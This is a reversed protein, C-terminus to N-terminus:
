RPPKPAGAAGAASGNPREAAGVVGDLSGNPRVGAAVAGDLSGNPRPGVEARAGAGAAEVASSDQPEAGAAWGIAAGAGDSGCAGAPPSHSLKRAPAPSSGASRLVAGWSATVAAPRAIRRMVAPSTTM